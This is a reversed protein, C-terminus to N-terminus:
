LNKPVLWSALAFCAVVPLWILVYPHVAYNKSMSTMLIVVLYYSLATALAIAM